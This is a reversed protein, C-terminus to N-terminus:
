VHLIWVVKGIDIFQFGERLKVGNMTYEAVFFENRPNVFIVTGFVRALQANFGPAYNGGLCFRPIFQAEQGIKVM